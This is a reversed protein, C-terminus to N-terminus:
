GTAAERKIPMIKKDVIEYGQEALMKKVADAAMVAQNHVFFWAALGAGILFGVILWGIAVLLASM